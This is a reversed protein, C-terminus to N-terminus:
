INDTAIPFLQNTPIRNISFRTCSRTQLLIPCWRDRSYPLSRRADCRSNGILKLPGSAPIWEPLMAALRRNCAYDTAQWILKLWPILTRADYRAPRGTNTRRGSEAEVSSLARIASKRHYGLLEVAQDILKRRHEAGAGQYRRRLKVLVEQRTGSSM